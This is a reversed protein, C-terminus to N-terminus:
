WKKYGKMYSTKQKAFKWMVPEIMYEYANIAHDNVNARKQKNGEEYNSLEFEEKLLKVNNSNIRFLHKGMLWLTIEIRNQIDEKKCNVFKLWNYNRKQAEVNLMDIVGAAANDVRVKLPFPAAWGIRNCYERMSNVYFDVIESMVKDIRKEKEYNSQVYENYIDLGYGEGSLSAGGFLCVTKGASENRGWGYDMGGLIFEHEQYITQQIFNLVHTYIAGQEYGPLGLDVVAARAKDFNWTDLLNKIESEGLYQKAVRWNTYHFLERKTRKDNPDNSINIDYIGLQSGTAKLTPIHWQQIKACYTIYPSSKAWPNCANLVIMQTRNDKDNIASISRTAEMISQVEETTFEFREEFFIFAYKVNGFRPLGARKAGLGKRNNNIGLIRMTQGNVTIQYNGNTRKASYPVGYAELIAIIDEFLFESDKMFKRWSMWGWNGNPCYLCLAAWLIIISTTKASKRSGILHFASIPIHKNAKVAKVIDWIYSYEKPVKLPTLQHNNM